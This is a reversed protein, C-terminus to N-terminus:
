EEMGLDGEEIYRSNDAFWDHIIYLCNILRKMKPIDNAYRRSLANNEFDKDTRLESNPRCNITVHRLQNFYKDLMIKLIMLNTGGKRCLAMELLQLSRLPEFSPSNETLMKVVREDGKDIATNLPRGFEYSRLPDFISRGDAYHLDRTVCEDLLYTAIAYTSPLLLSLISRDQFCNTSLPNAGNEVLIKILPLDQDKIAYDLPTKGTYNSNVIPSYNMSGAPLLDYVCYMEDVKVFNIKSGAVGEFNALVVHYKSFSSHCVSVLIDLVELLSSSTHLHFNIQPHLSDPENTKALAAFEIQLGANATFVQWLSTKALHQLNRMKDIMDKRYNTKACQDYESHYIVANNVRFAVDMLVGRDHVTRLAISSSLIKGIPEQFRLRLTCMLLSHEGTFGEICEIVNWRELVQLTWGYRDSEIRSTLEDVRQWIMRLAENNEFHIAQHAIIPNDFWDFGLRGLARIMKASTQGHQIAVQLARCREVAVLRNIQKSQGSRVLLLFTSTEKETISYFHRDVPVNYELFLKVCPWKEFQAAHHMIKAPHLIETLPYHELLEEIFRKQGSETAAILCHQLAASQHPKFREYKLLTVVAKVNNALAATFLLHSIIEPDLQQALANLRCNSHLIIAHEAQSLASRDNQPLTRGATHTGEGVSVHDGKAGGDTLASGDNSETAEKSWENVQEVSPFNIAAINASKQKITGKMFNVGTFAIVFANIVVQHNSNDSLLNYSLSDHALYNRYNGGQMIQVRQKLYYYNDGFYGFSKLAECIILQLYEIAAFKELPVDRARKILDKVTRMGLEDFTSRLRQLEDDFINQLTEKDQAVLDDVLEQNWPLAWKKYFLKVCQWKKDLAFINTYYKKLSSNFEAETDVDLAGYIHLEKMLRKTSDPIAKQEYLAPIRAFHAFLMCVKRHPHLKIVTPVMLLNKLQVDLQTAFRIGLKWSLIRRVTPLEKAAFCAELLEAHPFIRNEVLFAEVVQVIRIKLALHPWHRTNFEEEGIEKAELDWLRITIWTYEKLADFYVEHQKDIELTSRVYRALSHLEEVTKCRLMEGYLTKKASAILHIYALKFPLALNELHEHLQHYVNENFAALDFGRAVLSLGHSLMERLANNQISFYSALDQNFIKGIKGPLNPSNSTCKTSEGVVQIVRKMYARLIHVNKPKDAPRMQCYFIIRKVSYLQKLKLYLRLLKRKTHRDRFNNSIHKFDVVFEAVVLAVRSEMISKDTAKDNPRPNRKGKGKDTLKTIRDVIKDIKELLDSESKFAEMLKEKLAQRPNSSTGKVEELATLIKLEVVAMCQKIGNLQTCLMRMIEMILCKNVLLRYDRFQDGHKFISIFIALCFIAEKMPMNKTFGYFQLFYLQNHILQVRHLFQTDVDGVNRADYKTSIFRWCEDITELHYKWEHADKEGGWDGVLNRFSYDSLKWSVFDQLEVPLVLHQVSMKLKAGNIAEFTEQETWNSATTSLFAKFDEVSGAKMKEYCVDVRDKFLCSKLSACEMASSM